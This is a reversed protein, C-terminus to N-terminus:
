IKKLPLKKSSKSLSEELTKHHCYIRINPKNNYKEVIKETYKDLFYKVKEDEINQDDLIFDLISINSKNEKWIDLGNDILLLICDLPLYSTMSKNETLTEILLQPSQLLFTLGEKANESEFLPIFLIPEGLSHTIIKEIYNISLKKLIFPNYTRVLIETALPEINNKYMDLVSVESDDCKQKFVNDFRNFTEENYCILSTFSFLLSNDKFDEKYFLELYKFLFEIHKKVDSYSDIHHFKNIHYLHYPNFLPHSIIKEAYDYRNNKIAMALLPWGYDDGHKEPNTIPLLYNFIKDANCHLSYKLCDAAVYVPTPNHKNVDAYNLIKIISDQWSNLKFFKIFSELDDKEIIKILNNKM